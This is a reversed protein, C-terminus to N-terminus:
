ILNSRQRGIMKIRILGWWDIYPMRPGALSSTMLPITPIATAAADQKTPVVCAQISIYGLAMLLSDVSM